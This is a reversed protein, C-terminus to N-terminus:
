CRWRKGIGRALSARRVICSLPQRLWDVAACTRRHHRACGSPRKVSACRSRRRTRSLAGSFDGYRELLRLGGTEVLLPLEQPFISRVALFVTLFDSERATSFYWVGRTVQAVADFREEVDVRVEGQAPDDFRQMERRTGDAAARLQVRPNFVDFAFRGGQDLHGRVSQFCRVIDDAAHVHLLSNSAIFIRGFRRGLDFSAMDGVHFPARLAAAAFTARAEALMARSRDVGACAIGHAAIPLLMSGTGCALELVPRRAAAARDRYFGVNTSVGSPQPYMRDYLRANSYLSEIM